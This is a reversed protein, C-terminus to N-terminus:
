QVGVTTPALTSALDDIIDAAGASTSAVGYIYFDPRSLFAAIGHEAFFREYTGDLDIAQGAESGLVVVHMGLHTLQAIRADTLV